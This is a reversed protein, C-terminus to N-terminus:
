KEYSTEIYQIDRYKYDNIIISYSKFNDNTDLLKFGCNDYFKSVQDNKMTQKFNAYVEFFNEKKLLYIIKDMFAYEINRGIIRCSMLFTDIKAVKKNKDLKLICLGTVGSEGFKDSVSICIVKFDDKMVFNLLDAETYRNTTLNFQNTKQTMQAMRTVLSKDDFFVRIKLALSLLYDEINSSNKEANKRLTQQKYMETKNQDENSKSIDFFLNQANRIMHPYEYIKSPVKLTTVQPLKQKVLEIEFDSDDIFVISDLGINLEESIEKLNSAKDNWNIKKIVLDKNRILMDSHDNLVREVDTLNNKSCIGLIIGQNKLSLALSQIEHYIKGVPDNPSLNINDFGDEGVVGRWLTNDCDFIIAKKKKGSVALFFPLVLNTYDKFFAITYLAKSSYYYRFDVSNSVGVTAIAKDIDIFYFNDLNKKDIYNNLRNVMEELENCFPNTHSFIMSSFRNFLVLSSNKLSEFVLEMENIIKKEIEMLKDKTIIEAQYQFGEIYNSIEWFIIIADYKNSKQSAQIINDYDAFSVKGPISRDRLFYELIEGLQNVIINSLVHISYKENNVMYELRSNEKLIHSYKM